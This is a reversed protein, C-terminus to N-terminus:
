NPHKLCKKNYANNVNDKNKLKLFSTVCIDVYNALSWKIRLSYWYGNNVVFLYEYYYVNLIHIINNQPLPRCCKVYPSDSLSYLYIM